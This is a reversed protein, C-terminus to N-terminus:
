RRAGTLLNFELGSLEIGDAHEKPWTGDSSWSFGVPDGALVHDLILLCAVVVPDYRKAATKCFGFTTGLDRTEECSERAARIMVFTEHQGNFLILDDSLEIDSLGYDGSEM